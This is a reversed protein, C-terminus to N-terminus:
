VKESRTVIMEYRNNVCWNMNLPYIRVANQDGYYEYRIDQGETQYNLTINLAGAFPLGLLRVQDITTGVTATISTSCPTTANFSFWFTNNTVDLRAEFDVLHVENSAHPSKVELKGKSNMGPSLAVVLTYNATVALSEEISMGKPNQLTPIIYGGRYFMPTETIHGTIQQTSGSDSNNWATNGDVTYWLGPPFYARRTVGRDIIPAAFIAEGIMFQDVLPLVFNADRQNYFYFSMPKILPIFDKQYQRLTTYYYPAYTYRKRITSNVYGRFQDPFHIPGYSSNGDYSNRAIPLLMGFQFWRLCLDNDRPISLNFVMSGCIPTGAMPSLAYNRITHAVSEQLGKWSFPVQMGNFGGYYMSSTWISSSTVLMESNETKAETSENALTKYVTELAQQGYTNHLSIHSSYKPNGDSDSGVVHLAQPCVSSWYHSSNISATSSYSTIFMTQILSEPQECLSSANYLIPFNESLSLGNFLSINPIVPFNGLAPNFFDLYTVTINDVQGLFPIIDSSNTANMLWVGGEVQSIESVNWPVTVKQSLVVKKLNTELLNLIDTLNEFRQADIDFPHRLYEEICDSDFAIAKNEKFMLQLEDLVVSGNDAKRCLHLGLGWYPPIVPPRDISHKKRIHNHLQSIIAAQNPGTFFNLKIEPLETELHFMIGPAQVVQVIMPDTTDIFLGHWRGSNEYSIYFPLEANEFGNVVGYKLSSASGQGGKLGLFYPTPLATAFAIYNDTVIVPGLRTDFITEDTEYRGVRIYFYKDNGWEVVIQHSKGRDPFKRPNFIEVVLHEETEWHQLVHLPSMHGEQNPTTEVRMWETGNDNNVEMNSIGYQYASPLSHYCNFELDSSDEWCCLSRYCTEKDVIKAANLLCEFRSNEKILCSGYITRNSSELMTFFIIMPIIVGLLIALILVYLVRLRRDYILRDLWGVDRKDLEDHM